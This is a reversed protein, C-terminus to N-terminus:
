FDDMSKILTLFEAPAALSKLQACRPNDSLSWPKFGLQGSARVFDFKDRFSAFVHSGLLNNCIPCCPLLFNPFRERPFHERATILRTIPVFHDLHRTNGSDFLKPRVEAGCYVCRNQMILSHHRLTALERQVDAKRHRSM